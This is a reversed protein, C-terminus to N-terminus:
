KQRLKENWWREGALNWDSYTPPARGDHHGPGAAHTSTLHWHEQAERGPTPVPLARSRVETDALGERVGSVVGAPAQPPGLTASTVQRPDMPVVAPQGCGEKNNGAPRFQYEQRQRLMKEGLSLSRMPPQTSTVVMVNQSDTASSWSHSASKSFQISESEQDAYPDLGLRPNDYKGELVEDPLYVELEDWQEKSMFNIRERFAPPENMAAKRFSDVTKSLGDANFHKTRDRHQLEFDFCQLRQLWRATLDSTTSYTKLWKLAMNDCRIVFRKGHLFHKFEEMFTLAALMELKPAGYFREHSRLTRNGYAIVCLKKKDGVLQEQQLIGAIAIDSADTDLVFLGEDQSVAVIPSSTLEGLLQEFAQQCEDTWQFDLKSTRKLKTLPAAVKIYDKIFERHYAAFDLFHTVQERTSPVGWNKVKAVCDPDPKVGTEDVIRGMFRISTKFLECRAAKLKLGSARIARFVERLQQLHDQATTSALLVETAHCLTLNGVESDIGALVKSMLKQFTSVANCLGHTMRTWEYMNEPTRFGTKEIAAPAMPIQWHVHGMDIVSYWRTGGLKELTDRVPPLNLVERKTMENLKRYDACFRPTADKKKAVVITAGFPSNAERIVGADLLIRVQNDVLEREMPILRRQTDCQPDGELDVEIEHQVLHTLGVDSPSQMFLDENEDLLREVDRGDQSSLRGTLHGTPPRTVFRPARPTRALGDAREEETVTRGVDGQIPLRTKPALGGVLSATELDHLARVSELELHPNDDNSDFTEAGSYKSFPAQVEDASRSGIRPYNDKVGSPVEQLRARTPQDGGGEGGHLTRREYQCRMEVLPIKTMRPELRTELMEKTEPDHLVSMFPLYARGHHVTVLATMNNVGTGTMQGRRMSPEVMGVWADRPGDRTARRGRRRVSCLANVRTGGKVLLPEELQALFKPAHPEEVPVANVSYQLNPNRIILEQRPLDVIVDYKMLFDRGLIIEDAALKDVVIFSHVCPTTGVNFWMPSTYGRAGLSGGSATTLAVNLKHLQEEAGGLQQFLRLGMVSACAGTDILTSVEKDMFRLWSVGSTTVPQVNKRGQDAIGMHMQVSAIKQPALAPVGLVLDYPFEEDVAVYVHSKLGFGELTLQAAFPGYAEWRQTGVSCTILHARKEEPTKRKFQQYETTDRGQRACWRQFETWVRPNIITQDAKGDASCWRQLDGLDVCVQNPRNEARISLMDDEWHTKSSCGSVGSRVESPMDIIKETNPPKPRTMESTTETRTLSTCPSGDLKERSGQTEDPTRSQGDDDSQALKSSRRLFSTTLIPEFSSESQHQGSGPQTIDTSVDDESPVRGGERGFNKVMAIGAQFPPYCALEQTQSATDVRPRLRVGKIKEARTERAPGPRQTMVDVEAVLRLLPQVQNQFSDETQAGRNQKSPRLRYARDYTQFYTPGEEWPPDQFFTPDMEGLLECLQNDSGVVQSRGSSDSEGAPDETSGDHPGEMREERNDSDSGHDEQGGTESRAAPSRGNFPSRLRSTVSKLARLVREQPSQSASRCVPINAAERSPSQQNPAVQAPQVDGASSVSARSLTRDYEENVQM